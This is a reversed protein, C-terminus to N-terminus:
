TGFGTNTLDDFDPWVINKLQRMEEVQMWLLRGQNQWTPAWLFDKLIIEAEEFTKLGLNDCFDPLQAIFWEREPRGGAATGGVYLVWLIARATKENANYRSIDNLVMNMSFQLRTVFRDMLRANFDVGRLYNDLFITAAICGSTAFKGPGWINSLVLLSRETLYLKDSNGIKDEKSRKAHGIDDADLGAFHKLHTFNDKLELCLDEMDRVGPAVSQLSAVSTLYGEEKLEGPYPPTTKPNGNVDVNFIPDSGLANACNLDARLRM